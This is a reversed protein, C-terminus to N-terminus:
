KIRELDYQKHCKVCLRIWDDLQRLYQGSKNAWHFKASTIKCNSCIKPKGFKSEVWMHLGRYKVKSGKWVPSKEGFFRKGYFYNKNGKNAESIKKKTELSIRTGKSWINKGKLANSINSKHDETLKGGLKALSIKKKHEETKLYVGSPM